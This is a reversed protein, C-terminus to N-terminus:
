KFAVHVVPKGRKKPKRFGRQVLDKVRKEFVTDPRWFRWKESIAYISKDQKYGGGQYRVELFGKALLEDFARTLRPKTIGYKKEAEAYTFNLSECNICVHKEKGKRGIKNFQRKAMILILLQPAFGKLNLYARSEFLDREIWTGPPLKSKKGM